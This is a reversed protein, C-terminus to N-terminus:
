HSAPGIIDGTCLATTVATLYPFSFALKKSVLVYKSNQNFLISFSFSQFYEFSFKCYIAIQSQQLLPQVFDLFINVVCVFVPFSGRLEYSKVSFPFM